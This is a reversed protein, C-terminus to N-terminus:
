APKREALLRQLVDFEVPKTLHYDFGAEKSHRRDAEQGWGTLAILTMRAGGLQGRIRRAAEYGNLQPLGIDMLVVDPAIAAAAEVAELGDHATHAEHGVIRLLMALSDAADRNDDVVLIRRVEPRAPHLSQSIAQPPAAGPCAQAVPLRVLFESGTGPGDSRAEVSGGHLEVLRRVLTLGIGLGGQSRELSRDVQTFMEFVRPLMEAPIGIGNDRVRIEVFDREVRAALEIRGGPPTYKAANNLLNMLIQAVRTPDADLPIPEPPILIKLEHGAKEIIPRSAELATKVLEILDVPQKRLEIRGTTIRSVDLLDDVLRTMQEAQREIVARAWDLEPTPPGKARLVQVANRIPALPNRLEHALIALFEDKRRDSEKLAAMLRANETIDRFSWVRGVIRQDVYQIRSFREFVRGDALELLDYSEPPSTSCIAEVKTLFRQSDRFQACITELLQRHDSLAMHAATIRWMAAFRENYGTVNGEGDTVLVGDTTSELTAKLMALSQALEDTKAQLAETTRLLEQEARQRAASISQANQLAVARLRKEEDRDDM